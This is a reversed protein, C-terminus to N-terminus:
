TLTIPLCTSLETAHLRYRRRTTRQQEIFANGIMSVIRARRGTRQSPQASLFRRPGLKARGELFNDQESELEIVPRALGTGLEEPV